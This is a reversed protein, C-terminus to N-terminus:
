TLATDNTSFLLHNRRSKAAGRNCSAVFGVNEENRLYLLGPIRPLTEETGDTSSDDVVIVELSQDAQNDQISALCSQTFQLQNFVPIIISVDVSDRVPFEIPKTPPPPTILAATSGNQGALRPPTRLSSHDLGGIQEDIKYVEPHHPRWQLYDSVIKELHGDGEAERG